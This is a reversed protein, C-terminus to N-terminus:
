VKIREMSIVCFPSKRKVMNKSYLPLPQHCKALFLIGFAKILDVQEFRSELNAVLNDIFKRRSSEFIKRKEQSDFIIIGDEGEPLEVVFENQLNDSINNGITKIYFKSQGEKYPISDIFTKLRVGPNEKMDTLVRCVANVSGCVLSFDTTSRQFQLSLKAIHSLVDGMLHLTGMFEYTSVIKLLGIAASEGSDADSALCIMMARLNAIVAEVSGTVSLWRTDCPRVFLRAQQGLIGFINRLRAKHKTSYHFYNFIQVLHQEFKDILKVSHAAQASALALRHACCHIAILFPNVEKQLRTAVGKHKGTMVSAGDTGASYMNKIDVGKSQLVNILSNFIDDSTCGELGVVEFYRVVVKANVLYRLYIILTKDMGVDSMEDILVAFCCSDNVENVIQEDVVVKMAQQFAQVSDSHEYNTHRDVRLGKLVDCGQSLCLFNLDSLEANPHDKKAMYYVNKMAACICNEEKKYTATVAQTFMPKYVMSECSALHDKIKTHKRCNDKTIYYCGSTFTNSKGSQLCWKCLM